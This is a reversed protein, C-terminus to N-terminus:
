VHHGSAIFTHREFFVRHINSPDSGPTVGCDHADNTTRLGHKVGHLLYFTCNLNNFLSLLHKQAHVAAGVHRRARLSAM